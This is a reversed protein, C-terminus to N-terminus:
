TNICAFRSGAGYFGSYRCIYHFNPCVDSFYGSFTNKARLAGPHCFWLKEPDATTSKLNMFITEVNHCFKM